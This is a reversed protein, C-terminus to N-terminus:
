TLQFARKKRSNKLKPQSFGTEHCATISCTCENVHIYTHSIKVGNSCGLSVTRNSTSAAQCCRCTSSKPETYRSYSACDGECFTLDMINESQCDDHVIYDHVTHVQCGKIKDVCFYCCGDAMLQDTGPQCNSINFPPCQVRYNDTIFQGNVKTCTIRDCGRDTTPLVDGVKLIHQTGNVNVICHTQVCKGCCDKFSEPEQYEYGDDCVKDCTVMKCSIKFLQTKPDVERTCTCEQCDVPIPSGPEYEKKDFVCVEKPVCIIEPCCKGEPVKMDPSYGIECTNNWPPCTNIDCDCVQKTCCPDSPDTVNVLVLGPKTCSESVSDLCQKPKCTVSKTDSECVCDECNYEFVDDFEYEKKDFVCVKKPVCIIEPCCKGEPVKMDPSYGIECTKNWPPCLTINCDCVQKTCCPDSPDNVNVLVLGPQTCSEPVSDLCQKPKCIVSKTARDCVCDECNYVLVEDFEYEKRDFVCVEKPVCIIEPCCKGEPVKLDPSYGIECTKNWPPCLTVNCDCVQKTCCPDSPDAVNVLVLGPQTCSESVSDLCQKPKCLVSKTARDCVCDECNYVFVEDFEYEKKDFVCVEKPVCIIEPCCKGEPVKMDPSYGIECTKNWPPCLTINCYCTCCPPVTVNVLVLGPQTCSESVSDLCQKPKCIVSKTARDCVCDECNYEFVEGFERPTKSADLCGCKKVCVGSAKNFLEMGDPCFCGETLVSLKSQEPQDECTQPEAPGCPKYIKDKPCTINCLSTYNRWNICLGLKSCARAYTELSTCVMTSNSMHICDYQCGAFFKDPSIHSHCQEFLKSKLLNCEMLNCTGNTMPVPKPPTCIKGNTLNAPWYDAMVTCNHELIGGPSMCDDARNNNCTGCHGQTNNGFHQFPLNIGFGTAGFTVIVGLHPIELILDLVSSVVKVADRSFPLRLKKNDMSVELDAGGFLNKNTLTIVLSNNYSVIISRPCSVHDILNCYVNDIYIKLNYQPRIEEMLTYTCNGQYSYFTGDFTNYHPDGWGECFCDCAYYQCCHDKDYVLVPKMGNACTINKLPPCEHPIIEIINKKICKGMACNGLIFTENTNKQWEPCDYYPTSIPTPPTPCPNTTNQIVFSDSCIMTLCIGSGLHVNKLITKGPMYQTGNFECFRRTNPSTTTFTLTTTLSKTSSTSQTSGPHTASVPSTGATTSIRTPTASSTSVTPPKPTQPSSTSVVVTTSQTLNTTPTSGPPTRTTTTTTTTTIETPTPSSPSVTPPKPTQSFTTSVVVTTSQTLNTLPTSGPPTGTTTTTIIETPTPSSPSVTPPKPTQSSTTSLVVTTSQTLNTLPTSGPPTGTTTTTIIEIPTPSSPSVTPPNPTQSSSTSVVVTTSQTLNTTPTSGPPTRTTTTTAIETPTPSSPSVTLPKPTQSSTTSVVVTTSQTLNTTPTSGPPTRTTTTTTAIETPTPSSPSVTLPKPTQSSTTSVVVTTSQTLNTTPTSGPPTRTTTTTAIETPTPSSPSVTLPKPTQSSTTSVVVTTSQTLNTTPTSGPPTGTTTTTFIETPTPSSPSVTPPKPTQSSTTSVVVTTSQTLITTSTSGPPTGTTTTTTTIIETPTPSSTSVTPPKPTQSSTTSVVMTTSQTLNTTPTTGPPTGTTTTFIETPTPSSTSFTPPKPTQSSTLSVVVTTSQTLNTTPSSGPHTGTTTTIIETPTPSSPSVTPPKPTQSSTTSVVVTTSQTLNTTPTSGPPTGTTTTTTIIETPTSSSPSVTPPKPTQSSTLSVVVTTSQTLNTTPSSGPPTGTTTTRETPTPSSTSVTSPNPTSSTTSGVVTTSETIKTTPTSGLAASTTINTPSSTPVTSPKPTQSSTTSPTSTSALPTQTSTPTTTPSPTFFNSCCVRIEYDVCKYPRVTQKEKECQLGYLVNCQVSQKANDIYQTFSMDPKNVARCEIDEPHECIKKGSEKINEYTEFDNGGGTNPNYVNFWESWECTGPTTTEPTGTTTPSSTSVTPPQSPTTSKTNTTSETIKTTPTSGLAASTTINTPTSSSTSVTSPKPTQSSTTSPTSTSALPTQTSTLTTTPSPTFFNSCCVRIEYDVCKYPRVTQKEKECQLGYLVNCQVSQKANDIYQTFSMDPKNVARCEIGEPHECIKKGSEKINEYTEFDNGGGTNPNYVNFWESWECTGPTTTEPTGTTTPSSTSVTPPQSPTTSKTNTTSETIKTTPTSGLAASTTINTPTSSSTSVTSPKPTQSSTTSPTSTSALPTQTSTPTTTPSPTFFNSCCVRIEYDVCKYPRVTQKEKECQLGYLVNCQVSQKANDIYQTFSMDPKNVARCEIDEPHECIKKGSEKINEYTEFDNGGGTNPNYVNFWESWECTGPTTTEPTGTTTPSSTSVTPPQSPTTSKTNTTSETIKTTPTSGLAASTTINTPTSSSTSVTSPKPTQSSTTSPTSTSALPTQTSTLTTTPSPTFFNSCCVRIEYDVCKYPRVTQKEKECQLGYLVNCQVSQKANDIYQTFSMDPKNVARCEIGEPHECIKKGSEKINEYTEFDNGGGTNPNYVNFWESWECTGPTTTEPTGTTTPSSTSVTPPQSPTTSKTNTTSETIKTTPTSGLAASTTINTPTSSSTSVTSPKPTQSSTTSPTSTSALPTQTSTPTTTPSPTFFNSCCVRIEYDVCKYPRVTQKEKECQLGYLVNCQVSQKANDIYQTFSMDPKNVARCEIDEPHECIKKGSEKINEYTEFDNGGGTNPNYVNFWESWECTGPTRTEPTGTTATSTPTSVTSPIPTTSQIIKTTSTTGIPTSTTIKTPTPSSTSVTPPQSPTTSKTKTTSVTITTIPTSPTCPEQTEIVTTNICIAYYCMGMGDTVSYITKKDDYKTGKYSCCGPKQFCQIKGNGDCICIQCPDETPIEEGPNFETGNIYCTGNCAEVCIQNKEDFIPKDEPCKPYCGEMNPLTNNCIGEPNLCTKYCPTHCPSYHWTCDDQNNYYDCYVPCKEPTRWDVCVDAENCAQAYAAVATCLCECDGGTDCACSDKVCNEYYPNPDVKRHCDKFTDEKIISCERKAWTQRNPTALCPDFDPESDPCNSSAKWSDVFEVINTTQLNGQTTFDDKGDGNFNGCLGCVQGSHQPQLIIRVTTKRDWLVTLGNEADIVIYMGVKREKYKILPGVGTDTATVKNGSLDLRTRGLIIDVAKSCTTGTTGCPINETVMSFHGTKNGCKDQVAIYSCDGRFGFRQQDFTQYHGSGYITCISPCNHETCSWTGWQCTCKNCDMTIQAGPAYVQGNHSCPCNHPTVCNGRGDDLLGTPCQCGSECELSFCDVNQQLCTQACELGNENQGATSCNFYVKPPSCDLVPAKWSLCHFKGNMCVCHEDKISVSRGPQVKLGNNYCPCKEMPVCVGMEDQYLGDPCACGDVPVFDDSCDQRESSLSQCTSQCSQLQYSYNQSAPCNETYKECVLQRWGQLFIGKAACARAYSSFVACMCEESKECSCSSYKCRKYYSDPNVSAHCKAFLSEKDKMKSCWHEAFNESSTSYSCPDDIREKRDPCNLGVKWTNAFSIATGEVMGQPTKLDDSLVKNFNGCLGCTKGQFSQDVTIYVQMLPVLQVQVQLGFATQFMIHFSSPRFVTFDATTYPLLVEANHQVTGDAKIILPNKKDNDILVVISKLCTDTELNICPVIQGFIIFKSEDCDKSLLYNCDGHFTFEKGDYTTFHSGEEVACLGPYPLSKCIWNGGECVCEEVEKQLVEGANYVRDHKCQCQKLPICGTNSIDDFVTGPPCFCGDVKHEECLRNTDKHSCTNMCPSGNESYVMNYPCKVSCFNSTRWNPPTGGAHSCQRSYESLTSCLSTTNTEGPQRHCMDNECAKIYPLPSLVWSCSSWDESELIDGCIKQRKECRHKKHANQEEVEEFPDECFHNPDHVSHMNGFEVYGLRRGSQIFEDLAIGNFDGCLGCTRSSYKSDLEVVVSDDRNWMVSIGLKSYLKTYVSNEEVLIGAVNIPLTVNQENVMVLDETMVVAIDNITVSLRSIKSGKPEQTRKVYVSFQRILSQCDSVLNYECTGKFQYTEGDFTTFHFNGWMSCITNVHNSGYVSIPENTGENPQVTETNSSTATTQWESDMPDETGESFDGMFDKTQWESDMPDETGESFDRMFDSTSENTGENPKVETNSSAATTQWETDMPDETDEGFDRMFDAQTSQLGILLIVWRLMWIQSMRTTGM